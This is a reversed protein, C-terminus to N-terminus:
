NAAPLLRIEDLNLAGETATLRLKNEGAKLHVRAPLKVDKWTQWSGSSEVPASELGKVVEGNVRVERAPKEASACRLVVDYPGEKAARVTWELWHGKEDGWNYLSRHRTPAFVEVKGGGQASFNVADIMTERDDPGVLRIGTLNVGGGGLSTMRLLNGGAKLTVPAALKEEAWYGWGGTLPPTFSELGKAVQGNVSVQRPSSYLTSYRLYIAYAGAAPADLKWELWHGNADWQRFYGRPSFVKQAEGGGQNYLHTADILIDKKDPATLRLSSVAASSEDLCTMRLINRGDKIAVKVPLRSESFAAWGGTPALSFSDLGKAIEGNVALQRTPHFRTAYTLRLDYQGAPADEVAWELWHGKTSWLHVYDPPMDGEPERTRVKGSGEGTFTCAPLVIEAIAGRRADLEVLSVSGGVGFLNVSQAELRNSGDHVKWTFLDNGDAWEGGDLRIRFTKFNPTLTRLRVQLDAGRPSLSLSAQHIPFYPDNAPDDLLDKDPGRGRSYEDKTVLAGGPPRNGLWERKLTYYLIYYPAFSRGSTKRRDRGRFFSLAKGQNAFWEKRIEYINLPLGDKEAYFHGTPDFMVWRRYQNSWMETFSHTPIDIPRCVYGMSAAASILLAAFNECYLKQESGALSLIQQPDRVKGVETPDGYEIQQNVWEMLLLQREFETRGTAVVDDLRCKVRLEDLKPDGYRDFVYRQTIKNEVCPLTDLARVAITRGGLDLVDGQRLSEGGAAPAALAPVPRSTADAAQAALCASGILLLPVWTFRLRRM